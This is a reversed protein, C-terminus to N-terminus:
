LTPTTTMTLIDLLFKTLLALCNQTSCIQLSSFIMVLIYIILFCCINFDRTMILLNQIYVETNKLYKLALHSSNSYINMLWFINNNNFFSILLIDRHNIVDKCLAFCLTALRINIYIVMRSYDYKIASPRSFNLWNPHNTVGVLSEKECNNSSPLSCITSQSPEQIFIINFKRINQSFIKLNSFIM